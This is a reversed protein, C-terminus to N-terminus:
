EHYASMRDASNATCAARRRLAPRVDSCHEANRTRLELTKKPQVLFAPTFSPTAARCGATAQTAPPVHFDQTCFDTVSSSCIVETQVMETLICIPSVRCPHPRGSLFGSPPVSIRRRLAFCPPLIFGSSYSSKSGSNRDLIKKARFRRSPSTSLGLRSGTLPSDARLRRFSLCISTICPM